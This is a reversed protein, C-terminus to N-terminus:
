KLKKVSNQIDEITLNGIKGSTAIIHGEIDVNKAKLLGNDYFAITEEGELDKVSFIKSYVKEADINTVQGDQKYSELIGLQARYTYSTTLIDPGIMM